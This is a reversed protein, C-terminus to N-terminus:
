TDNQASHLLHAFPSSCSLSGARLRVKKVRTLTFFARTHSRFRRHIIVLWFRFLINSITLFALLFRKALDKGQPLIVVTPLLRNLPDDFAGVGVSSKPCDWPKPPIFLKILAFTCNIEVFRYALTRSGIGILFSVILCLIRLFSGEGQRVQSLVPVGFNVKAYLLVQFAM